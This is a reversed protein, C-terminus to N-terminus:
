IRRARRERMLLFGQCGPPVCTAAADNDKWRAGAFRKDGQQGDGVDTPRREDDRRGNWKHILPVAFQKAREARGNTQEAAAVVIDLWERDGGVIGGVDVEFAPAVLETQDDEIFAM